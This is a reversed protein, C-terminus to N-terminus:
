HDRQKTAEQLSLHHAWIIIFSSLTGAALYATDSVLIWPLSLKKEFETICSYILYGLIVATNVSLVVCLLLVTYILTQPKMKEENKAIGAKEQLSRAGFFKFVSAFLVINIVSRAILEM